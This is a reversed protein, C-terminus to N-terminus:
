DKGELEKIAKEISILHAEYVKITTYKMESSASEHVVGRFGRHLYELKEAIKKHEEMLSAHKVKEDKTM